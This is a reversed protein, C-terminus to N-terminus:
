IIQSVVERSGRNSGARVYSMENFMLKSSSYRLRYAARGRLRDPWKEGSVREINIEFGLKLGV